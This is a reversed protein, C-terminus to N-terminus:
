TQDTIAQKNGLDTTARRLIREALATNGVLDCIAISATAAIAYSFNIAELIEADDYNPQITSETHRRAIQQFGTHTYGNMADWSRSKIRSIVGNKYGDTKEVAAVLKWFKPIQGKTFDDLESETACRHLWVGRVYSEFLLRMLAFAAGNLRKSILIIIAKHHEDAMDLCGAALKRRLDTGIVLGDIQKDLWQIFKESIEIHQSSDM